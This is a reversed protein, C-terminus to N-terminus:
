NVVLKTTENISKTTIRSIYTGQILKTVKTTLKQASIKSKLLLKGKSNYLTFNGGENSKNDIFITDGSTYVKIIKSSPVLTPFNVGNTENDSLTAMKFHIKDTFGTSISARKEYNGWDLLYTQQRNICMKLDSSVSNNPVDSFGDIVVYNATASANKGGKVVVKLVHSADSLGSIKYLVQQYQKSPAYLDLNEVKLVNDVYIDCFGLNHNKPGILAVSTGTFSYEVAAGVTNSYTETGANDPADAYQIWSGTFKASLNREDTIIPLITNLDMRVTHAKGNSEVKLTNSTSSNVAQAYYIAEKSSRFDNTMGYGEHNKTRQHFDKMDSSWSWTPKERYVLDKAQSTKLASGTTRGIHDAPYVSWLGKRDWDLRDISKNLVFCIGVEDYSGTATPPNSISYDVAMQGNKAISLIYNFGVTDYKGLVKIIVADATKETTVNTVSYKGLAFPTLNLHPGNKIIEEGKMKGSTIYGLLKDFVIEVNQGSITILKDTEIINNPLGSLSPLQITKATLPLNYEDVTMAFEGVKSNFTLNLIENTNWRRAPIILMGNQHPALNMAISGKETGVAWKITLENFNTHNFRNRIPISLAANEGPFVVASDKICIPSYAKKTLYYEPKPRRWGDFIGWQGYGNTANPGLFVDDITGWIAGGITGNSVEIKDWFRKLSEGWFNRTGPDREGASGNDFYCLVHSYEDFLYPKGTKNFNSNWSPYHYSDVDLYQDTNWGGGYANHGTKLPRTSDQIRAYNRETEFNTGWKTNENGLSWILISPHSKDRELADSIQTMFYPLVSADSALNNLKGDAAFHDIWCIAMEEEVYMGYRDCLDLFEETTPYHSTRIYNINANKYLLIDQEDIGEIYARGALPHISHRCGGRLKVESGNVLLRNGDLKIERFGVKKQLKEIVIGNEYLEAKLTYLNPHESDWKLPATIPISIASESKTSSLDIRDASLAVEKGTPDFLSLKLYSPDTSNFKVAANVVLSANQFADDLDTQFHLRSIYNQPLAMLRVNRLIGGIFHDFNTTFYRSAYGSAFSPDKTIDMVGVTIVADEGATVLSTIDLNWRTFGGYHEGAFQGNVWVRGKSYVGDFQLLVRKGVFDAPIHIMKKYPYEVDRKIEFGQMWPEGPVKIDSWKSYDVTNQWFDVPPTLTFKWVGNLPIVPHTLGAVSVPIPAIIPPLYAQASAFLSMSLAVILMSFKSIPNKKM